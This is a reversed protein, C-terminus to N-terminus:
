ITLMVFINYTHTDIKFGYLMGSVLLTCIM